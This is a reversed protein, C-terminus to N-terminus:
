HATRVELLSQLLMDPWLISQGNAEKITQNKSQETWRAPFPCIKFAGTSTYSTLKICRWGKPIVKKSYKSGALGMVIGKGIEEKRGETFDYVRVVDGCDM